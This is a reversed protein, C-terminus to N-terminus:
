EGKEEESYKEHKELLEDRCVWCIPVTDYDDEDKMPVEIDAMHVYQFENGCLRCKTM